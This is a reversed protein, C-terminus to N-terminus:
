SIKEAPKLNQEYFRGLDRVIQDRVKRYEGIQEDETGRKKTPDEFGIHIRHRVEGTFYPCNKRAEDCVTISYDFSNSLFRDILKPHHSSIDIGIEKMVRVAMPNVTAGPRTGASLVQLSPDLYRLYGEAMQSRCTNGTCVILIKM